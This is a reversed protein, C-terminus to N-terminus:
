ILYIVNGDIGVPVHGSEIIRLIPEFCEGEGALEATCILLALYMSNVTLYRVIKEDGFQQFAHDFAPHFVAEPLFDALKELQAMTYDSDIKEKLQDPIQKLKEWAKSDRFSFRGIMENLEEKKVWKLEYENVHLREFFSQMHSETVADKFGARHYWKAELLKKILLNVPAAKTDEQFIVTM